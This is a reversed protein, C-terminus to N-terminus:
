RNSFSVHTQNLKGASDRRHQPLLGDRQLPEVAVSSEVSTSRKMNISAVRPLYRLSLFYGGGRNADGLQYNDGGPADKLSRLRWRGYSSADVCEMPVIHIVPCDPGDM